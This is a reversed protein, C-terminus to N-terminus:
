RKHIYNILDMMDLWHYSILQHKDSRNSPIIFEGGYHNAEDMWVKNTTFGGERFYKKGAEDKFRHNPKPPENRNM